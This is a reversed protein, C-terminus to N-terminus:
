DLKTNTFSAYFSFVQRQAFKKFILNCVFSDTTCKGQPRKSEEKDKIKNRAKSTHVNM